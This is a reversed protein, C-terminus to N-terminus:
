FVPYKQWAIFAQWFILLWCHLREPKNKIVPSIGSKKLKVLLLCIFEIVMYFFLATTVLNLLSNKACPFKSTSFSITASSKILRVATAGMGPLTSPNFCNMPINCLPKEFMSISIWSCTSSFSITAVRFLIRAVCVPSIIPCWGVPLSTTKLTISKTRSRSPFYMSCQPCFLM